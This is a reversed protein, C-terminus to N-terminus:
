PQGDRGNGTDALLKRGTPTVGRVLVAFVEGYRGKGKSTKISADLLGAEHLKEAVPFSAPDPVFSERFARELMQREISNLEM